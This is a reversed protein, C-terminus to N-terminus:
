QLFEFEMYDPDHKKEPSNSQACLKTVKVYVVFYILNIEGGNSLNILRNIKNNIKNNLKERTDVIRVVSWNFVVARCSGRM